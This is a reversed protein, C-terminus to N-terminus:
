PSTSLSTGSAKADPTRQPLAYSGAPDSWAATLTGPCMGTGIGEMPFGAAGGEEKSLLISALM